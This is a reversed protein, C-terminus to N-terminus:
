QFGVLVMSYKKEEFAVSINSSFNAEKQHTKVAIRAGSSPMEDIIPSTQCRQLCIFIPDQLPCHRSIKMM